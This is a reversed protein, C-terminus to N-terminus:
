LPESKGTEVNVVPLEQDAETQGFQRRVDTSWGSESRIKSPIFVDQVSLGSLLDTRVYFANSGASNTGILSNGKQGALPTLASLSAAWYLNSFHGDTRNFALYYPISM